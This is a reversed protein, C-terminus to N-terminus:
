APQLDRRITRAALAFHVAAWVYLCSMVSM